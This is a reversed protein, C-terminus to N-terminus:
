GELLIELARELSRGEYLTKTKKAYLGRGYVVWSDPAQWVLWKGASTLRLYFNSKDKMAQEILDSM